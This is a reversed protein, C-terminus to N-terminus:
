ELFKFGPKKNGESSSMTSIHVALRVVSLWINKEKAEFIYAVSAAVIIIAVRSAFTLQLPM